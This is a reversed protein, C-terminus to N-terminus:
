RSRRSGRHEQGPRRRSRSARPAGPGRGPSALRPARLRGQPGGRPDHHRRPRRQPRRDRRRAGPRERARRRRPPAPVPLQTKAEPDGTTDVWAYVSRLDSVRADDAIAAVVATGDWERATVAHTPGSRPRTSSRWPSRRRPARAPADKATLTRTRCRCGPPRPVGRLRGAAQPVPGAPRGARGDRRRRGRLRLVM